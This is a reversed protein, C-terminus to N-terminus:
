RPFQLTVERRERVVVVPVPPSAYGRGLAARFQEVTEVAEGAGRVIVDGPRLGARHAPTGEIVDVTLVGREIGFYSALGPNMSTLEAGAVVRQGAFLITAPAPAAPARAPVPTGRVAPAGPTVPVARWFGTYGTGPVPAPRLRVVADREEPPGRFVVVSGDTRFASLSDLLHRQLQVAEALRRSQGELQRAQDALVFAHVERLRAHAAASEEHLQRSRVALERTLAEIGEGGMREFETRISDVNLIVRARISDMRLVLAEPTPAPGSGGFVGAAPREAARVSVDLTRGAREVTLRVVDGPRIGALRRHLAEYSAPGSEVRVIRDGARLGAAEAPSGSMVRGVTLVETEGGEPGRTRYTTLQVGLWGGQGQAAPSPPPAPRVQQAEGPTAGLGAGALVGASALVGAIVAARGAWGRGSRRETVKEM